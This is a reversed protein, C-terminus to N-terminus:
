LRIEVQGNAWILLAKNDCDGTGFDIYLVRDNISIKVKGKVIWPCTVPKILASETNKVVTVGNNYKTESRGEISYIDDRITRTSSGNIQTVTKIGAFAFGRGNPWTVKGDKVQVSYAIAGNASLNSIVKTGEIHARNVYYDKLTITLVSGPRRIPGSFTLEVIGKRFKGDRCICGDGFDITITKPYTSDSSTVTACPGLKFQLDVFLSVNLILRNGSGQAEEIGEMDAGASLGMETVDDYEAEAAANEQSMTQAEEQSVTTSQVSGEKKCATFSLAAIFVFAAFRISFMKM